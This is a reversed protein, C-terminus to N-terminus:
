SRKGAAKSLMENVLDTDPITPAQGVQISRLTHMHPKVLKMPAPETHFRQIPRRMAGFSSILSQAPSEESTSCSDHM